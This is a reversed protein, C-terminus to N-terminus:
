GARRAQFEELPVCVFSRRCLDHVGLRSQGSLSPIRAPHRGEDLKEDFAKNSEQFGYRDQEGCDFYIKIGSKKIAAANAEAVFVPNSARFFEEDPPDGFINGILKLM